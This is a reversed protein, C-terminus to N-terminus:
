PLLDTTGEFIYTRDFGSGANLYIANWRWVSRYGAGYGKPYYPVRYASRSTPLPGIQALHPPLEHSYYSRRFAWDEASSNTAPLLVFSLLVVALGITKLHFM